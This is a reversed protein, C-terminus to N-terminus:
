SMETLQSDIYEEGRFLAWGARGAMAHWGGMDWKYVKDGVQAHEGYKGINDETVECMFGTIYDILPCDDVTVNPRANPDTIQPKDSTTNIELLMVDKKGPAPKPIVPMLEDSLLKPSINKIKPFIGQSFLEKHRKKEEDLARQKDEESATTLLWKGGVKQVENTDNGNIEFYRGEGGRLELVSWDFRFRRYRVGQNTSSEYYHILGDSTEGTHVLPAGTLPCIIETTTRM